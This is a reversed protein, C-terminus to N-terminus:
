STRRRRASPRGNSRGPYPLVARVGAGGRPVGELRLRSSRMVRMASMTAQRRTGAAAPACCAGGACSLRRPATRVTSGRARVTATVVPTPMASRTTWSRTGVSSRTLTPPAASGSVARWGPSMTPTEKPQRGAPRTAYVISRTPRMVAPAPREGHLPRCARPRHPEGESGDTCATPRLGAIGEGAEGGGLAAAESLTAGHEVARERGRRTEPREEVGVPTLLAVLRGHRATRPVFDLAVSRRKVGTAGAPGAVLEGGLASGDELLPNGRGQVSRQVDVALRDRGVRGGDGRARRRDDEPEAQEVGHGIRHDERVGVGIVAVAVADRTTGVTEEVAAQAAEAPLREHRRQALEVFPRQRRLHADGAGADRVFLGHAASGQGGARVRGRIGLEGLLRGILQVREHAQEGRRRRLPERALGAPTTLREGADATRTAM